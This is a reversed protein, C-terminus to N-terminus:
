FIVYYTRGYWVSLILSMFYKIKKLLILIKEIQHKKVDIWVDFKKIFSLKKWTQYSSDSIPLRSNINTNVNAIRSYKNVNTKLKKSIWSYQRINAFLVFNKITHLIYKCNKWISYFNCHMYQNKYGSV